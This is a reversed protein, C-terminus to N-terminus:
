NIKNDKLVYGKEELYQKTLIGEKLLKLVDKDKCLLASIRNQHDKMFFIEDKDSDTEDDDSDTEENNSVDVEPGNYGGVYKLRDYYDDLHRPYGGEELDEMEESTVELCYLDSSSEFEENGLTSIINGKKVNYSKWRKADEQTAKRVEGDFSWNEGDSLTYITFRKSRLNYRHTTNGQIPHEPQLLSPSVTEILSSMILPIIPM